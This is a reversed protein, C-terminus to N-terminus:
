ESDVAKEVDKDPLEDLKKPNGLNERRSKRLVELEDQYKTYVPWFVKAEETSLNLRQTLFGIKMAEVQERSPRNPHNGDHPPPQAIAHLALCIIFPILLKKM